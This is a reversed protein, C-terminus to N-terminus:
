VVTIFRSLTDFLLSALGTERQMETRAQLGLDPRDSVIGDSDRRLHERIGPEDNVTWAMFGLGADWAEDQLEQTATWQEVVIFDAPTNPIGGGAVPMTYGVSLNPRLTKLRAVSAPDLSHYINSELAGLSELETVLRDVHDPTEAGSLKIEILLPMEIELARTVYDAFSPIPAQHGHMDHVTIGTLEDLTLDKVADSRDALRDLTADHMAVFEGDRTQMVDMEVLDAGATAAAELGAITNEVGGESFGRHGLVLTSPQETLQALTGMSASGLILAMVIAGAAVGWNIARSGAPSPSTARAPPPSLAAAPADRPAEHGLPQPERTALTVGTPLQAASRAVRAMLIAAIFATVLGTLLFGAVQAVGLSYAAVVHSMAPAVADTLATPLVAVFILATAAVAAVALVTVVACVLSAQTRLGRTLRWSSRASRGGSTLVFIPVTLAWRINLVVLTLSFVALVVIGTSSKTLEAGFSPPLAIGQTFASVFGFGTFPVLLFLYLVLSASRPRLLERAVRGLEGAFERLTLHPWRLLVVVSTFQMSLLWFAVIVIVAILALTFPIGTASSFSSMDLGHMGGARLAERFLWSIVPLAVVLILAQSVLILGALRAGGARVMGWGQSLLARYERWVGPRDMTQPNM